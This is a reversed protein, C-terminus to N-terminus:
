KPLDVKLCTEKELVEIQSEMYSKRDVPYSRAYINAVIFIILCLLSQAAFLYPFWMISSSTLIVRLIIPNIVAGVFASLILASSVFGTFPIFAENTWSLISPFIISVSLGVCVCSAWLGTTSMHHASIVVGIHSSLLGLFSIALISSLKVHKVVIIGALRSCLVAFAMVSTLLAGDSPSWKMYTVCFLTLFDFFTYDVANFVSMLLCCLLISSFKRFMSLKIHDSKHGSRKQKIEIVSKYKLGTGLIALSGFLALLASIMFAYVIKSKHHVRENYLPINTRNDYTETVNNEYIYQVSENSSNNSIFVAHDNKDIGNPLTMAATLFPM